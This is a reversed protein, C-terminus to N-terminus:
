GKGTPAAGGTFFASGVSKIVGSAANGVATTLASTQGLSAVGTKAATANASSASGPNLAEGVVGLTNTGGEGGINFSPIKSLVATLNTSQAELPATIGLDSVQQQAAIAQSNITNNSQVIQLATSDDQADTAIGYNAQIQTAGLVTQDDQADSTVGATAAIQAQQIAAGAAISATTVADDPTGTGTATSSSTTSSTSSSSLLWYAGILFIGGGLFLWKHEGIFKGANHFASM